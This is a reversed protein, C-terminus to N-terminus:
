YLNEIPSKIKVLRKLYLVEKESMDILEMSKALYGELVRSPLNVLNEDSYDYKPEEAKTIDEDGVMEKTLMEMSKM